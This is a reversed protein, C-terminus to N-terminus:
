KINLQNKNFHKAAVKIFMWSTKRKDEPVPSSTNYTNAATVSYFSTWRRLEIFNWKRRWYNGVYKLLFVANLQCLMQHRRKIYKRFITNKTEPTSRKRETTILTNSTTRSCIRRNQNCYSSEAMHVLGDDFSM